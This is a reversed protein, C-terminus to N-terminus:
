RIQKTSDFELNQSGSPNVWTQITIGTDSRMSDTSLDVFLRGYQGQVNRFYFNQYLNRSWPIDTAKMSAEFSPRYGSDPAWNPYLDNEPLIGGNLMEITVTWDFKDRGRQIQLPSRLLTVRLDGSVVKKGTALDFSASTGDYPVRSDFEMHTMPEAGKLKWMKFIARNDTSTKGGAPLTMATMNRGLEYGSKSPAVALEWGRLGTFQFLGDADTQTTHVEKGEGIDFGRIFMLDGNVRAGVVPQGYQDIVKGYFDQPTQNNAAWVSQMMQGKTIQGKQYKEYQAQLNTELEATSVNTNSIM